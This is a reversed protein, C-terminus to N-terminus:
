GAYAAAVFGRQATGTTSFGITTTTGAAVVDAGTVTNFSNEIAADYRETAGTWATSVTGSAASAYGSALVVDGAQTTVDLNGVSIDVTADTQGTAAGKTLSWVGIGCRVATGSLTVVVDATTGTPVVASAFVVRRNGTFPGSDANVTAAVGGITISSLTVAAAAAWGLAVVVRRTPSATGIPQAAFTYTSQDAASVASQQFTAEFPDPPPEAPAAFYAAMHDSLAGETLGSRAAYYAFQAQMRDDIGTETRYFRTEVEDLTDDTTGGANSLFYFHKLEGLTATAPMGTQTRYFEYEGPLAM